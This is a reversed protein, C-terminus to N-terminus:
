GYCCRRRVWRGAPLVPFRGSSLFAWDWATEGEPNTRIASM